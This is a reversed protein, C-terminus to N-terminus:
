RNTWSALPSASPASWGALSHAWGSISQAGIERKRYGRCITCSSKSRASAISWPAGPTRRLGPARPSARSANDVADMFQHLKREVTQAQDQFRRADRASAASRELEAFRLITNDARLVSLTQHDLDDIRQMQGHLMHVQWIAFAGVMTFLAVISFFCVGLRQGIRLRAMRYIAREIRPRFVTEGISESGTM